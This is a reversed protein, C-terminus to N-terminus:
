RTAQSRFPLVNSGTTKNSQSLAKNIQEAFGRQALFMSILILIVFARSFAEASKVYGISGVTGIAAVWVFFSPPGKVTDGVVAFLEDQKGRYASWFLLTGVLILVLPM